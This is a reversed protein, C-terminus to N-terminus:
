FVADMGRACGAEVRGGEGGGGVGLEGMGRRETETGSCVEICVAGEKERRGGGEGEGVEAALDYDYFDEYEEENDDYLMKCACTDVMHRQVAHLSRFQRASADDGRTGLPM